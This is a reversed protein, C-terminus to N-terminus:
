THSTLIFYNLVVSCTANVSKPVCPLVFPCKNKGKNNNNNNQYYEILQFTRYISSLPVLKPCVIPIFTPIPVMLSLHGNPVCESDQTDKMLYEHFDPIELICRVTM